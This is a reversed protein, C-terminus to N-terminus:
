CVSSTAWGETKYENSQTPATRFVLRRSLLHPVQGKTEMEDMAQLVCRDASVDDITSVSM